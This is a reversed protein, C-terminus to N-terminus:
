KLIRVLNTFQDTWEPLGARPVISRSYAAIAPNRLFATNRTLLVWDSAYRLSQAPPRDAILVVQFGAERAIREVVPPLDLYRNSVHFAIIGDPKTVRSYIALAERTLLHVPIADGSFADLSLVDFRREPLDYAGAAIERELSVRADGLVPEVRGQCDRLYDFQNEAIDLVAPNLEYVRFLDGPRAYAALTGAGLGISGIRLPGVGARVSSFARGIGSSEGFYATPVLRQPPQMVQSGHLISGHMLRRLQGTGYRSEVVRLTGYFNRAAFETSTSLRHYYSWDFVLTCSLATLAVARWLRYSQLLVASFILLAACGWRADGQVIKAWELTYADLVSPLGGLLLLIVATGLLAFGINATWTKGPNRRAEESCCYVGLSALLLISLPMEWYGDFVTPALLGVLLGGLAGGSALSLYFHTLYEPSPKSRALEGHCLICGLLIGVAFVPVALYVSLNGEDAFLAWAMAGTALMAPTVWFRREYWGRGGRGEFSIAFSLLYMSLPLIWLLPIAAVNQTIQNTGSVLLASGLASCGIWYAYMGLPPAPEAETRGAPGRHQFDSHRSRRWAYIISCAVFLVYGLSWALAQVHLPAFPEIAFPYCLLGFLSGLNSLAFLRYISRDVGAAGPAGNLWRQLLPATSSLLFFPLGVTTALLGLIQLAPKADHDPKWSSAPIIPLLSCSALLLLIHVVFQRTGVARRTLLHAYTYGLVLVVQFFVLCITWVGASGGFWPLIQKAVIPQVLFLLFSSLLITLAPALM